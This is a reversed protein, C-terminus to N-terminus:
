LYDLKIVEKIKKMIRTFVLQFYYIIIGSINILYDLTFLLWKEQSKKSFDQKSESIQIFQLLPYSIQMFSYFNAHNLNHSELNNKFGIRLNEDMFQYPNITKKSLEKELEKDHLKIKDRAIQKFTKPNYAKKGLINKNKKLYGNQYLRKM